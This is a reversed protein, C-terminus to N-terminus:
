PPKAPSLLLLRAPDELEADPTERQHAWSPLAGAAHDSGRLRASGQSGGGPCSRRPITSALADSPAPASSHGSNSTHRRSAGHLKPDRSLGPTRQQGPRRRCRGAAPRLATGARGVPCAATGCRRTSSPSCPRVPLLKGAAWGARSAPETGGDGKGIEKGM